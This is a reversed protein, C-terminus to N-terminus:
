HLQFETRCHPCTILGRHKSHTVIELNALRNDSKIGNKHHVWEMTTLNRGLKKEMMMRHEFVYGRSNASPHSPIRIHRYGDMDLYGGNNRASPYGKMTGTKWAHKLACKNSCFKREKRGKFPTKCEPCTHPHREKNARLKAKYEPDSELRRKLWQNKYQRRHMSLKM